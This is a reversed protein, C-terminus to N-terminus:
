LENHFLSMSNIHANLHCLYMIATTYHLENGVKLVNINNILM